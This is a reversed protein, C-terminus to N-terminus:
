VYVTGTGSKFMYVKKGTPTYSPTLLGDAGNVDGGSGNDIVLGTSVWMNPLTNDYSILVVGSAGNGGAYFTLPSLLFGGGGGGSGSEPTAHAAQTPSAARQM